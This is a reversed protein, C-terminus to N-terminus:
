PTKSRDRCGEFGNRGLVLNFFWGLDYEGATLMNYLQMLFGQDTAM